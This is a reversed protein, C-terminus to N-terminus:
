SALQIYLVGDLLVTTAEVGLEDDSAPSTIMVSLKVILKSKTM